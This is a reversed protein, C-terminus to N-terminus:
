FARHILDHDAESALAPFHKVFDVDLARRNQNLLAHGRGGLRRNGRQRGCTPRAAASETRPQAGAPSTAVIASMWTVAALSAPVGVRGM